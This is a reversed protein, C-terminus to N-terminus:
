CHMVLGTASNGFVIQEKQMKFSFAFCFLKHMCECTCVCACVSAKTLYNYHIIKLLDSSIESEFILVFSVTPTM